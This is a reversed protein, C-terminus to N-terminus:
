ASASRAVSVSAHVAGVVWPSWELLRSPRRLGEEVSLCHAWSCERFFRLSGRILDFNQFPVVETTGCTGCFWSPKLGQPIGENLLSM